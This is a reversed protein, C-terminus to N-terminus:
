AFLPNDFLVAAGQSSTGSGGQACLGNALMQSAQRCLQQLYSAGGAPQIAQLQAQVAESSATLPYLVQAKLGAGMSTGSSSAGSNSSSGRLGHALATAPLTVVMKAVAEDCVTFHLTVECTGESGSVRVLAPWALLAAELQSIIASAHGVNALATDIVQPLKYTPATTSYSCLESLAPLVAAAVPSGSFAHPVPAVRVTAVGPGPQGDAGRMEVAIAFQNHVTMTWAGQERVGRADVQIGQLGTVIDLAQQAESLQVELHSRARAAARPTSAAMGKGQVQQLTRQLEAKQQLAEEFKAQTCLPTSPCELITAAAVSLWLSSILM